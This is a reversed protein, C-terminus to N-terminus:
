WEIHGRRFLDDLPNGFNILKDNRVHLYRVTTKIDFHGLIDKIYRIDVGKELMHTAFSHRLSHIGVDKSIRAKRMANEFIRQATRTPYAKGTQSSEFLYVKPRVPVKRLYGHLVDLLVVSLPVFRDKKGKACRVFIQMRKSDIDTLKLNVVESVRLGAAYVTFLLAKHKINPLANFLRELEEESLVKPLQLEKKPRPIEWVFRDWGVLNEYYFKLANIRSHMTNISLKLEEFCRMLYARLEDPTVTRASQEGLSIMFHRMEQLYTRKTAQSYAKLVLRERMKEIEARNVPRILKWKEEWVNKRPEAPKKVPKPRIEIKIMSDREAWDGRGNIVLEALGAVAKRLRDLVGEGCHMWFCKHTHSWMAGAVRQVARNLLISQRFYLGVCEKGRHFLPKVIIKEM